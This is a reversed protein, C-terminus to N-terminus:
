FYMRIGQYGYNFKFRNDRKKKKRKKSDKESEVNKEATNQTKSRKRAKVPKDVKLAKSGKDSKTSKAGKKTKGGIKGKETAEVAEVTDLKDIKDVKKKSDSGSASFLKLKSKDVLKHYIPCPFPLQGAKGTIDEGPAEYGGCINCYTTKKTFGFTCECTCYCPDGEIKMKAQVGGVVQEVKQCCDKQVSSLDLRIGEESPSRAFMNRKYDCDVVKACKGVSIFPAEPLDLPCINEFCSGTAKGMNCESGCVKFKFQSSSDDIAPSELLSSPTPPLQVKKAPTPTSVREPSHSTKSQTPTPKSSGSAKPSDTEVTFYSVCYVKNGFPGTDNGFIYNLPNLSEKIDIIPDSKTSVLAKQKSKSISIDTHSRVLSAISKNIPNKNLNSLEELEEKIHSDKSKNKSSDNNSSNFKKFKRKGGNYITKIVGPNETVEKFDQEIATVPDSKIGYSACQYGKPLSVFSSPANNELKSLKIRMKLIAMRKSSYEDFVHYKKTINVIQVNQNNQLKELYEIFESGWPNHSSGIVYPNANSWVWLEIPYKKMTMILTEIPSAILIAQSSPVPMKSLLRKPKKKKSKYKIQRNLAAELAENPDRLHLTFVDAFKCRIRFRKSDTFSKLEEIAMEFLFMSDSHAM